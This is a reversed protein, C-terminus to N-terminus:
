ETEEKNNRMDLTAENIADDITKLGDNIMSYGVAAGFGHALEKFEKILKRKYMVIQKEEYGVLYILFENGNTRMIETQELQNKILINAAETIVNDGEEHGYNDNIYAVNNLDVIMISQPYIESDDWKEINDNLFNRNKLSTLMDIYKLKNEKTIGQLKKKNHKIVRIIIAIVLLILLGILSYIIKILSENEKEVKFDKYTIKDILQENNVFELYYNLYKIFIKNDENNSIVYNSNSDIIFEYEIKYDRLITDFYMEYTKYDLVFVSNKNIKNLLEQVNNYEVVAINNNKLYATVNANLITTVEKLSALSNITIDNKINTLIVFKQNLVDVTQKNEISFENTDTFNMFYDIKKDIFASILDAYKPYEEYVIEVGSMDSFLEIIKSNIGILKNGVLKDYPENNVFGYKYRKSKFKIEDDNNIENISFYNINFYKNFTENYSETYWKNYYKNIINNLKDNDGLSIVYDLTMETIDYNIHYKSIDNLYITKPLVIMNLETQDKEFENLMEDITEYSVFSITNGNNLYKKVNDMDKEYVGIKVNDIEKLSLYKKAEKGIIAYNDQYLLIDNNELKEKVSFSYGSVEEGYTYTIRNFELGTKTELEDLFSYVLGEGELSFVPIKNVISFDQITNKNDEIWQKELITLTSEKDQKNLYYLTGVGIGLLVLISIIIGIIKKM